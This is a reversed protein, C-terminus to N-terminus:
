WDASMLIQENDWDTKELIDSFSQYLTVTKHYLFADSEDYVEECISDAKEQMSETFIGNALKYDTYWNGDSDKNLPSEEIEWGHEKIDKEVMLLTKRAMEKLEEIKEKPISLYTYPDNYNLINMLSWFKRFYAVETLTSTSKNKDISDVYYHVAHNIFKEITTNSSKSKEKVTDFLEPGLVKELESLASESLTITPTYELKARYFYTDLGM